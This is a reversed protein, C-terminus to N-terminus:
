LNPGSQLLVHCNFLAYVSIKLSLTMVTTGELLLLLIELDFTLTPFNLILFLIVCWMSNPIAVM